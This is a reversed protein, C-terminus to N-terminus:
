ISSIKLINLQNKSPFIINLNLKSKKLESAFRGNGGTIIIKNKKM